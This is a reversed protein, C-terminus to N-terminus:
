KEVYNGLMNICKDWRLMLRFIQDSSFRSGQSCLRSCGSVYKPLSVVSQFNGIGRYHPLPFPEEDIAAFVIAQNWSFLIKFSM